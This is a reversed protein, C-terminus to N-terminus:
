FFALLKYFDFEHLFLMIQNEFFVKKKNKLIKELPTLVTFNSKKKLNELKEIKKEFIAEIPSPLHQLYCLRLLLLILENPPDVSAASSNMKMPPCM